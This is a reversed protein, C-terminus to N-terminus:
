YLIDALIGNDDFVLAKKKGNDSAVLIWSVEGEFLVQEFYHISPPAAEFAATVAPEADEPLAVTLETNIPELFDPIDERELTKLDLAEKEEIAEISGATPEDAIPASEEVPAARQATEDSLQAEQVVNSPSPVSVVVVILFVAALGAAASIWPRTWLPRKASETVPQPANEKADAARIASLLRTDSQDPLPPTDSGSLAEAATKLLELDARCEECTELHAEIIERNTKSVEGDLYSSLQKQTFEHDEENM